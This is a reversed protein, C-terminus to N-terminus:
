DNKYTYVSESTFSDQKVFSQRKFGYASRKLVHNTAAFITARILENNDCCTNAFETNYSQLMGSTKLETM